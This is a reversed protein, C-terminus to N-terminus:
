ISPVCRLVLIYDCLAKTELRRWTNIDCEARAHAPILFLFPSPRITALRFLPLFKVSVSPISISLSEYDPM